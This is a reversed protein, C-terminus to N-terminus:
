FMAVTKYTVTHWQVAVKIQSQLLLIHFVFGFFDNLFNQRYSM